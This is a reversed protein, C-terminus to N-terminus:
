EESNVSTVQRIVLVISLFVAVLSVVKTYIDGGPNYKEDLWVGLLNGLYITVCMQIALGSFRVFSNYQSPKKSNNNTPKDMKPKM